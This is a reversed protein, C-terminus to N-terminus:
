NLTQLDLFVFRICWRLPNPITMDIIIKVKIVM